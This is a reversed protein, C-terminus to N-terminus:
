TLLISDANNRPDIMRVCGSDEAVIVKVGSSAIWLGVDFIASDARKTLLSPKEEQKTRLDKMQLTGDTLGMVIM